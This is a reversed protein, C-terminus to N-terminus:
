MIQNMISGDEEAIKELVRKAVDPDINKLEDISIVEESVKVKGTEKTEAYVKCLVKESYGAVNDFAMYVNLLKSEQLNNNHLWKRVQERIKPRNARLWKGTKERVVPMYRRYAYYGGIAVGATALAGVLLKITQDNM